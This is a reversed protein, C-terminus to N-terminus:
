MPGISRDYRTCCVHGLNNQKLNIYYKYVNFQHVKNNINIINIQWM